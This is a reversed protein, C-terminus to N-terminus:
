QNLLKLRGYYYLHEYVTLDDYIVDKQSCYGLIQRIEAMNKDADLGNIKINGNDKEILGCIM